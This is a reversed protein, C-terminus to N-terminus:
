FLIVKKLPFFFLLDSIIPTICNLERIEWSIKYNLVLKKESEKIIWFHKKLKLIISVCFKAETVSKRIIKLHTHTHTHTHTHV